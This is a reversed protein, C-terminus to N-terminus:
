FDIFLCANASQTCPFSPPVFTCASSITSPNNSAIMWVKFFPPSTEIAPKPIKETFARAARIARLGFVPSCTLTAAFFTGFNRGAFPKFSVTAYNRGTRQRTRELSNPFLFCGEPTNKTELLKLLDNIDDIFFDPKPMHLNDKHFGYTVRVTRTGANKGAEVDLHSDGVMIAKDPTEKLIELAKLLPAPSPKTEKIMDTTIVAGFMDFIGSQILTPHSTHKHRSTVAAIKYGKEKLKKLVEVSGSFPTSLGFNNLQFGRHAEVLKDMDADKGALIHYFEPFAIGVVSSIAGRDPVPYGCTKLAHETAQFIFERTDLITGDIDFLITTIDKV